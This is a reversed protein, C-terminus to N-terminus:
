GRWHQCCWGRVRVQPCEEPVHMARMHGRLPREGTIIEWLLVGFSYVDVARTCTRAGLLVEPAAETLLVGKAGLISCGFFSVVHPHRLAQLRLAETVFVNQLEASQGVDVVKAAVVEGRYVAKCVCGSAGAGLEVLSGGETRLFAISTPPVVSERLSPPLGDLSLAAPPPGPDPRRRSGSSRSSLAALEAALEALGVASEGSAGPKPAPSPLPRTFAAPPQQLDALSPGASSRRSTAAPSGSAAPAALPPTTPTRGGAAQPASGRAAAMEVAAQVAPVAEAPPGPQLRLQMQLQGSITGIGALPNSHGPSSAPESATGCGGEEVKGGGPAAVLLRRRRRRRRLAWAAAGAAAAALAAGVAAGAAAGPPLGGRSTPQYAVTGDVSSTTGNHPHDRLYLVASPTLIIAAPDASHKFIAVGEPTNYVGAPRYVFSQCQSDNQCYRALGELSDQLVCEQIQPKYSGPCDFGGSAFMGAGLRRTFGPLQPGTTALPSGQAYVVVAVCTPQSHCVDAADVPRSFACGSPLQSGACPFDGGSLGQAPSVSFGPVRAYGLPPERVPFGAWTGIDPARAAVPPELVCTGSLLQCPLSVNAHTACGDSHTCYNFFACDSLERCAAACSEPSSAPVDRLIPGAFAVNPVLVVQRQEDNPDTTTFVEQLGLPAPDSAGSTRQAALLSLALLLLHLM